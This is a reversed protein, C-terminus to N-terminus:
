IFGEFKRGWVFLLKFLYSFWRFIKFVTVSEPRLTKIISTKIVLIFFFLRFLSWLFNNSGSKQACKIVCYWVLFKVKSASIDPIGLFRLVPIKKIKVFVAWEFFFIISHLFFILCFFVIRILVLITPKIFLFFILIPVKILLFEIDDFFGLIVLCLLMITIWKYCFWYQAYYVLFLNIFFFEFDILLISLISYFYYNIKIIFVRDQNIHSLILM